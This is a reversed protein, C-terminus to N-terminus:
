VGSVREPVPSERTLDLYVDELSPSGVDLGNLDVAHRRAWSFLEGVVDGVQAHRVVLVRDAGVHAVLDSPLDELPAEPPVRYRITAGGFRARLEDPTSDAVVHGEALVLVRDALQQAEELYHTTLLVTTGGAALDRVGAWLGRRAEPDLGTTPEDLFLVEPRGVIGLGLDVRRRQGGSLVGIRTNADDTLGIVALVEAVPVPRPFLRAYLRVAERVTLQADLSTSQLVLGIRARWRRGARRPEEGLVRVAGSTPDISGELIEITTTKGAGNPGLLAAISGAPVEFSIDDVAAFTGYRKVLHSVRIASV